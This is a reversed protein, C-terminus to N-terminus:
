RNAPILEVSQLKMLNGHLLTKVSIKLEGTGDRIKLTGINDEIPAKLTTKVASSLTFFTESVILSGGELADSSYKLVVEYGGAPLGPLKWSACSGVASWDTLVGAASDYRVRDLKADAPKFVIKEPIEAAEGLLRTDLLRAMKEKAAIEAEIRQRENRAAIATDYDRSAAAKKELAELSAIQQRLVPVTSKILDAELKVQGEKFQGSKAGLAAM